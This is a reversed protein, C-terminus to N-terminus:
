KQRRRRRSAVLGAAGLGMLCLTAPEPTIVFAMSLADGTEPDNMEQWWWQAGEGEWYVPFDNWYDLSTKWGFDYADVTVSLDLWYIEDQTQEFPDVIDVINVQYYNDHDPMSYGADGPNWWGQVGTGDQVSTFDEPGFDREWLLDGPVSWGNPGEPVNDHISAHINTINGVNDGAWSGWFHIDKVPGSQSCQWDEAVINPTCINVDWGNPDPFQPFHMKHGDEEVWDAAAPVGLALVAVATLCLTRITWQAANM